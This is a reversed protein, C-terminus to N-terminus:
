RAAVAEPTVTDGEFVEVAEVGSEAEALMRLKGRREAIRGHADGHILYAPKWAAM